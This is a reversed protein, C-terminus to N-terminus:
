KRKFTVSITQNSKVSPFTYSSVAGVSIGDVKDVTSAYSGSSTGYGVKYGAVTEETNADWALTVGAARAQPTCVTLILLLFALLRAHLLIGSSPRRTDAM